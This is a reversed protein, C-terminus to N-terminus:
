GNLTNMERTFGEIFSYINPWMVLALWIVGLIVTWKNTIKDINQWKISFIFCFFSVLIPLFLWNELTSESINFISSSFVFAVMAIGIGFLLIEMAKNMKPTTEEFKNMLAEDGKILEDLSIDFLEGIVVVNAFTPLSTGNEWKSISQRSIHMKKALDEQSMNHKKRQQQLQKGIQM